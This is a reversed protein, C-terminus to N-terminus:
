AREGVHIAAIGLTVSEWAVNAFGSQRMRAALDGTVPFNRVSEPLYRYATRHGSIMGGVVPLVRHFYFLYLARVIAVPPISFELIVFRGGPALVRLV